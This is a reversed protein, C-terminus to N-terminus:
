KVHTKTHRYDKIRYKNIYLTIFIFYEYIFRKIKFIYYFISMIYMVSYHTNFLINKLLLLLVMIKFSIRISVNHPHM